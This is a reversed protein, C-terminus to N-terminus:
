AKAEQYPAFKVLREEVVAVNEDEDVEGRYEVAVLVLRGTGVAPIWLTGVRLDRVATWKERGAAGDVTGWLLYRIPHAETTTGLDLRSFKPAAPGIVAQNPDLEADETVIACRRAGGDDYWRLDAREDFARVEFAEELVASSLEVEGKEEDFRMWNGHRRTAVVCENPTFILACAGEELPALAQSLEAGATQWRYVQISDRVATM